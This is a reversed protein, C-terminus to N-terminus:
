PAKLITYLLLRKNLDQLRLAPNSSSVYVNCACVIFYV